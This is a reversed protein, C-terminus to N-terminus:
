AGDCGIELNHFAIEVGFGCVEGEGFDYGVPRQSDAKSMAM